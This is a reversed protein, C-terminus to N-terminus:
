KNKQSKEWKEWRNLHDQVSGRVKLNWKLALHNKAFLEPFSTKEDKILFENELSKAVSLYKLLNEFNLHPRFEQAMEVFYGLVNVQSVEFSKAALVLPEVKNVNIALLYPIFTEYV